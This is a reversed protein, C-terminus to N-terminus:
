VTDDMADIKKDVASVVKKFYGITPSAALTKSISDNLLNFRAIVEDKTILKNVNKLNQDSEHKLIAFEERGIFDDIKDKM